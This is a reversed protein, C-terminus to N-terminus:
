ALEGRPDWTAWELPRTLRVPERFEFGLREDSQGNTLRAWVSRIEEEDLRSGKEWHPSFWSVDEGTLRASEAGQRVKRAVQTPNRYQAHAISLGRGVRGVRSALHNGPGIELLPHSRVAVKGPFSPVRDMFYNTALLSGQIEETPVMHHFNAHVLSSSQQRLWDALPAGPAFWFEDADFPIIWDAGAKWATRALWTVKESQWHAPQRDLAIHIREDDRALELLYERTGDSSRNDAILLQDVGQSLMHAITHPLVDMEDRVLAIGWVANAQRRSRRLSPLDLDRIVRLQRRVRSPSRYQKTFWSLQGLEERFTM